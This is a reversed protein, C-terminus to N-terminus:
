PGIEQNLKDLLDLIEKNESIDSMSHGYHAYRIIGNRDVVLLAPMRGLKLMNVEQRYQYAVKHDPDPLGTFPIRQKKWYRRFADPNDPGVALIM